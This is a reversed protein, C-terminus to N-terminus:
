RAMWRTRAVTAVVVDSAGGQRLVRACESTTAGTTLVDDILLIRKGAVSGRWSLFPRALAFAGRVNLSRGLASFATQSQTPRTRVLLRTAVPLHFRAGVELALLAAQNFTRTMRRRWHLPVPVVLDVWRSLGGTELFNALVAGLVHALSVEKGLKLRLVLERAAGEYHLPAVARSFGFRRGRCSACGRAVAANPPVASGCRPCVMEGVWPLEEWCGHCFYRYPVDLGVGCVVCHEPFVFRWLAEAAAGLPGERRAV